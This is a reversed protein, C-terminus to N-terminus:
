FLLNKRRTDGSEIGSVGGDWLRRILVAQLTENYNMIKLINMHSILHLPTAESAANSMKQVVETVRLM